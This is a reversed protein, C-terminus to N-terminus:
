HHPSFPKCPSVSHCMPSLMVEALKGHQLTMPLLSHCQWSLVGDPPPRLCSWPALCGCATAWHHIAAPRCRSKHVVQGWGVEEELTGAMNGKAIHRCPKNLIHSQTRLGPFSLYTRLGWWYNELTGVGEWWFMVRVHFDELCFHSRSSVQHPNWSLGCFCHSALIIIFPM